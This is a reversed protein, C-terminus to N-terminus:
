GGFSVCISAEVGCNLPGTSLVEPKSCLLLFLFWVLGLCFFGLFVLLPRPRSLLCLVRDLTWHVPAPVLLPSPM